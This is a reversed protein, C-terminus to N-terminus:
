YYYGTDLAPDHTEITADFSEDPTAADPDLMDGLSDAADGDSAPAADQYTFIPEETVFNDELRTTDPEDTMNANPNLMGSNLTTIMMLLGLLFFLICSVGLLTDVGLMRAKVENAPAGRGTRALLAFIPIVSLAGWIWCSIELLKKGLEPGVLGIQGMMIGLIGLTIVLWAGLSKFCSSGSERGSFDFYHRIFPRIFYSEFFGDYVVRPNYLEKFNM